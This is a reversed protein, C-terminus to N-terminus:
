HFCRLIDPQSFRFTETQFAAPLPSVPAQACASEADNQHWTQDLLEQERQRAIEAAGVNGYTISDVIHDYEVMDLESRVREAEEVYQQFLRERDRDNLATEPTGFTVADKKAKGKRKSPTDRYEGFTNEDKNAKKKGPTRKVDTESGRGHGHEQRGDRRGGKQRKRVWSKLRRAFPVVSGYQSAGEITFDEPLDNINHWMIKSIEKRTRPVFEFNEHVNQVIFIRTKVNQMFADMYDGERGQAAFNYSTEEEVERIACELETEDKGLKGKPFSWRGKSGWGLVLLVRTMNPNLLAAGCKPVEQRYQRFQEFLNNVQGKYPQLLPTHAFLAAAFDKLSLVPLGKNKARFFDEYFWHASEIAFFLRDFSEFESAPLNLLFRCCLDDLVEQLTSASLSDDGGEEAM